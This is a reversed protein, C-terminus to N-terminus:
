FKDGRVRRLQVMAVHADALASVFDSQARVHNVQADILELVTASGVNYKEQSLKLDEAAAAMGDRAVEIRDRSLSIAQLVEEVEVAIKLEEDRMQYYAQLKRAEAQDIQGKANFGDFVPVNMTFLLSWADFDGIQNLTEPWGPTTFGYSLSADLSPYRLGQASGLGAEASGMQARAAALEPRQSMAAAYVLSSDAVLEPETLTTDIPITQSPDVGLLNALRASEILIARRDRIIDLTAQSVQVKQKLVDGKAVSGLEFLAETRRLQDQSLALNERSVQALKQAKLLAYFQSYAQLAIDARTASYRDHAAKEGRSASRVNGWTSFNVLQQDVRAYGSWFQSEFIPLASAAIRSATPDITNNYRAGAYLSPIIPSRASKMQGGAAKVDQESSLVIYSRELAMDAAADATLPKDITLVQATGTTVCCAILAMCLAGAAVGGNIWWRVFNARNVWMSGIGWTRPQWFSMRNGTRGM